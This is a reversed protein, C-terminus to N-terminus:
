AGPPQGSEPSAPKPETGLIEALEPHEAPNILDEAIEHDVGFLAINHTTVKKRGFLLLIVICLALIVGAIILMTEGFASSYTPVLSTKLVAAEGADPITENNLGASLLQQIHTASLDPYGDALLAPRLLSGGVMMLRFSVGRAVLAGAGIAAAVMALLFPIQGLTVQVPQYQYVYHWVNATELNSSATAFNWIFTAIVAAVFIPSKFMKIPFSANPSKAEAIAFGALGIIGIGIPVLTGAALPAKSIQTIGYLVGIMGIALLGLGAYDFKGEKVPESEPLTKPYLALAVLCAAPGLLFALRWNVGVLVGGVLNLAIIFVWTLAIWRGIIKGLTDETALLRVLGFSCAFLGGLGIGTLARAALFVGTTPAAAAVLGGVMVILASLMIIKRRGYRDGLAGLIMVTAALALTPIAALLPITGLSVSLGQAVKPLAIASVTADAGTIACSLGLIAVASGVRVQKVPLDVFTSSM